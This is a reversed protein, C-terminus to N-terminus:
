NKLYTRAVLVTMDDRASNGNLRLAENLITEALVQPNTSVLKAVFEKLNDATEFADTIGDTALIVIDKTSITTKYISPNINDLAGIPLAGGEVMELDSAHKIIGYPAGVKIFDALQNNLDLLCVDLTSYNEQNNIALLKNVSELVVDNEFGVKYFNEILSLTMASMKHASVGAGMGDCLALLFRDNSLRIISHCDGCEDNGAKCCSALGFACDYKSMKRLAISNFGTEEMPKIQTIKMPTKLVETLVKEITALDRETNKVILMASIDMNKETYLLVEKCEVNFNLLRSIIKNERAIDFTVNTDIEDGIDLLLQSVAGMQDALLFKVNNVDAVMNKYQKYEDTLRNVLTILYNVKGCRNTLGSPIDLLSVKGKKLAIEILTELNSLNDTGLSRTCRNKDLCEKCCTSTIERTLMAVLEQHTLEKKIMGLHIQKMELFINSLESMRKHINRRTTNILNRSSLESRKVYVLDALSNLGKNPVCLFVVSASIIPLLAYIIDWSKGVFYLEVFASGLVAVLVIKFKNPMSFMQVLLCIISFEAIPLLSLTSVSVGLSFALSFAFTLIPSNLSVSVFIALMLVLKYVEFNYIEVPALGVGLVAIAFLFCISEDLTLKLCNKRIIMIQCVVTFVWLAVLGLVFYACLGWPNHLNYYVYVGQSLVYVTLNCGLKIKKKILCHIYFSILCVAVVALSTLFTQMSPEVAVASGVTFVAMIKEDVGVFVCAFLFAYLFPSIGYINANAFVLCVFLLAVYKLTKTLNFSKKSENTM